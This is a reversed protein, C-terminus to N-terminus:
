RDLVVAPFKKTIESALSAAEDPNLGLLQCYEQRAGALNGSYLYAYGLSLHGEAYDPRVAVGQRLTQIGEVFRGVTIYADGLNRYGEPYAPNIRVAEQFNSIGEDYRHRTMMDVGYNNHALWNDKTVALTHAFLVTNNRWYGVQVWTLLGLAVAAVMALVGAVKERRMRAAVEAAGWVLMVFIGTLPLYTYRDALAQSGIRVFGIVPLLTVLYWLWGFLLYPRRERQWVTLGTMAALLLISGFVAVPTVASRQFPYFVALRVPWFTLGLYKVYSILANGANVLLSSQDLSNVSGTTRQAVFTVVASAASLGFLPIKERLLKGSGSGSFRQLPWFDLLLLVLPVTVVMPKALLGCLLCCFVVLYQRWGPLRVYRLYGLIALLGFLTSLLDKREAVWAVSEVHLPHLAFFLAVCLSRGFAGTLRQFVTLLLLTNALHLVLSTLHHGAPNFGFLQVDLMHSLWTLPHWNGAHFTTFSWLIGQGTVGQRVMDNAIVYVPDDFKIFDNQLLRAYAAAVLFVVLLWSGLQKRELIM